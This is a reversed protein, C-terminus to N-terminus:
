NESPLRRKERTARSDPAPLGSLGDPRDPLSSPTSAPFPQHRPAHPLDVTRTTPRSELDRGAHGIVPGVRGLHDANATSDQRGDPDVRMLPACLRWRTCRASSAEHPPPFSCHRERGDAARKGAEFVDLSRAGDASSCKIGDLGAKPISARLGSSPCDPRALGALGTPM